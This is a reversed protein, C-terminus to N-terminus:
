ATRGEPHLLLVEPLVPPPGLALRLGLRRRSETALWPGWPAVTSVSSRYMFHNHM